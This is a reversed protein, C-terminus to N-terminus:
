FPKRNQELESGVGADKFIQMPETKRLRHAEFTIVTDVFQDISTSFDKQLGSNNMVLVKLSDIAYNRKLIQPLDSGDDDHYYTEFIYESVYHDYATAPHAIRERIRNKCTELDVNLYLFYADQLFERSFQQFAREYDNRSFEILGIEELQVTTIYPKVRQELERLALDFVTLDLVDFGGHATPKFRGQTDERYMQYLIEYDNFRVTSWLKKRAYSSIYRSVTSKGSGPLGLIFLKVAM